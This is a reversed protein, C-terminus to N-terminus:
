AISKLSMRRGHGIIKHFSLVPVSGFEESLDLVTSSSTNINGYISVGAKQAQSATLDRGAQFNEQENATVKAHFTVNANRSRAILLTCGDAVVRGTVLAYGRRWDYDRRDHLIDIIEEKISRLQNTKIKQTTNQGYSFFYSNRKSFKISVEADFTETNAVGVHINEVELSATGSTELKQGLTIDISMSRSSMYQKGSSKEDNKPSIVLHSFNDIYRLNEQEEQYFGSRLGGFSGLEIDDSPNPNAYLRSFRHYARCFSKVSM